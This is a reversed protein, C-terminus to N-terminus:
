RRAAWVFLVNARHPKHRGLFFCACASKGRLSREKRRESERIETETGTATGAPCFLVDNTLFRRTERENAASIESRMKVFFFFFFFRDVLLAVVNDICCFFPPTSTIPLRAVAGAPM